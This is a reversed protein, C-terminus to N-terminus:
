LGIANRFQISDKPAGKRANRVVGRISWEPMRTKKVNKIDPNKAYATQILFTEVQDIVRGNVKGKRTPPIVFFMVPLCREYELMADTYKHKNSANFVEQGFSKTAKGVYLPKYGRGTKAAFMYVGAKEALKERGDAADWFEAFLLRRRGVGLRQRTIEYPGKVSFEM